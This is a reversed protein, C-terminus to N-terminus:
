TTPTPASDSSQTEDSIVSPKDVPPSPKVANETKKACESARREFDAVMAAPTGYAARMSEPLDNWLSEARAQINLADHYSEPVDVVNLYRANGLVSRDGMLARRMMSEISCADKFQKQCLSPANFSVGKAMGRNFRTAFNMM